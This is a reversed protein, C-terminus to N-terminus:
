MQFYLMEVVRVHDSHDVLDLASPASEPPDVVVMPYLQSAPKDNKPRLQSVDTVTTAFSSESRIDSGQVRVDATTDDLFDCACEVKHAHARQAKATGRAAPHPHLCRCHRICTLLLVGTCARVCPRRSSHRRGIPHEETSALGTHTRIIRSSIHCACPPLRARRWVHLQSCGACVRQQTIDSRAGDSAAM